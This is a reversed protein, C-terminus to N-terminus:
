KKTQSKSTFEKSLELRLNRELDKSDILTKKKKQPNTGKVNRKNTKDM